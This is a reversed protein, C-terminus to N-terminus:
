GKGYLTFFGLYTPFSNINCGSAQLKILFSVRAWTNEESNQSIELFVKKLSYRQTVAELSFINRFIQPLIIYAPFTETSVQTLSFLETCLRLIIKEHNKAFLLIFCVM